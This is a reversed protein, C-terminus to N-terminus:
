ASATRPQHEYFYVDNPNPYLVVKHDKTCSYLSPPGLRPKLSKMSELTVETLIWTRGYKDKIKM